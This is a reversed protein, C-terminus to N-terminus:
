ATREWCYKVIYPPMKNVATGSGTAGITHTHTGASNVTHTHSGASTTTHTHTVDLILNFRGRTTAGGFENTAVKSSYFVNTTGSGNGDSGYINNITSSLTINAGNRQTTNTSHTHSGAAVTTHTHSGNEAATHTHSPLNATTLTITAAGGTAGNSYTDGAALIFKDKIQQWTGGFISGPNTNQSSWYLSGVPHAALIAETKAKNILYNISNIVQSNNGSNPTEGGAALVNNLEAEISSVGANLDTVGKTAGNLFYNLHEAPLVESPVYGNSYKAAEPKINTGNDSFEPYSIFTQTAIM